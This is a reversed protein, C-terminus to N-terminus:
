PGPSVHHPASRARTGSPLPRQMTECSRRTSFRPLSGTASLIRNLRIWNAERQPGQGMLILQSLGWLVAGTAISWPFAMRRDCPILSFPRKTGLRTDPMWESFATFRLHTTHAFAHVSTCHRSVARRRLRALDFSFHRDSAQSCFAGSSLASLALPAGSSSSSFRFFIFPRSHVM